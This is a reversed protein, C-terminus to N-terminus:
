WELERKFADVIYGDYQAYYSGFLGGLIFKYVQKLRVDAALGVGVALDLGM